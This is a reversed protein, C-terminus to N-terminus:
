ICLVISGKVDMETADILYLWDLSIMFLFFSMNNEIKVNLYLGLVSQKTERKLENL